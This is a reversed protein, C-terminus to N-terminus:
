SSPGAIHFDEKQEPTLGTHKRAPSGSTWVSLKAFAGSTLNEWDVQARRHMGHALNVM